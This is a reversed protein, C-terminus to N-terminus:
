RGSNHGIATITVSGTTVVPRIWIPAERLVVMQFLTPDLAITTGSVDKLAIWNIGDNSGQIAVTGGTGVAQITVDPHRSFSSALGTGTESVWQSVKYATGNLGNTPTTGAPM